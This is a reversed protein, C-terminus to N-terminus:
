LAIVPDISFRIYIKVWNITKSKSMVHFECQLIQEFWIQCSQEQFNSSFQLFFRLFSIQTHSHEPSLGSVSFINSIAVPDWSSYFGQMVCLRLGTHSCWLIICQRLRIYTAVCLWIDSPFLCKCMESTGLVSSSRPPIAPQHIRVWTEYLTQAQIPNRDLLVLHDRLKPEEDKMYGYNRISM